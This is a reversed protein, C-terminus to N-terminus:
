GPLDFYDGCKDCMMRSPWSEGGPKYKGGCKCKKKNEEYLSVKFDNLCNPLDSCEEDKCRAENFNGQLYCELRTNEAVVEKSTAKLADITQKIELRFSDLVKLGMKDLETNDLKKKLSELVELVTDLDKVKFAIEFARNLPTTVTPEEEKSDNDM